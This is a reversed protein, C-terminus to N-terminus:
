KPMFSVTITTNARVAENNKEAANWAPMSKIVRVAEEGCGGGIDKRVKVYKITGDKEIIANCLVFGKINMKKAQAPYKLNKQLYNLMETKGGPFQPLVDVEDYIMSDMKADIEESSTTDNLAKLSDQKLEAAIEEETKPKTVKDLVYRFGYEKLYYDLVKASPSFKMLVTDDNLDLSKINIVGKSDLNFNIVSYYYNKVGNGLSVQFSDLTFYNKEMRSQKSSLDIVRSSELDYLQASCLQSISLM